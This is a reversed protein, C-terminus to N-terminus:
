QIRRLSGVFYKGTPLSSHFLAGSSCDCKTACHNVRSFMRKPSVKIPPPIHRRTPVRNGTVTKSQPRSDSWVFSSYCSFNCQCFQRSQIFTSPLPSISGLLGPQRSHAPMDSRTDFPVQAHQLIKRVCRQMFDKSKCSVEIEHTILGKYLQDQRTTM